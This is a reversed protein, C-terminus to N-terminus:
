AYSGSTRIQVLNVKRSMVEFKQVMVMNTIKVCL